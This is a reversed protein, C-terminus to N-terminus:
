GCRKAAGSKNKPKAAAKTKTKATIAAKTSAKTPVIEDRIARALATIFGALQPSGGYIDKKTWVAGRGQAEAVCGDLSSPDALARMALPRAAARDWTSWELRPVQVLDVPLFTLGPLAAELSARAVGTVIAGSLGTLTIPPSRPGSASSSSVGKSASM